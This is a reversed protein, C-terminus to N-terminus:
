TVCVVERVEPVAAKLNREVGFKLTESASPCGVCSGTLRVRVVGAATVDVLQIDGGDRQVGPRIRALEASIRAVM